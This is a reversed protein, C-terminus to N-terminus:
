IIYDIVKQSNETHAGFDAEDVVVFKRKSDIDKIIDFKSFSDEPTQISIFVVLKSKGLNNNFKEIWNDNERTDIVKFDRFNSWKGIKEDKYKGIIENEFSTFVSHMYSPLIMVDNDLRRFLELYTLTKGFRACLEAVINVSDTEENEIADLCQLIAIEQLLHPKFDKRTIKIYESGSVISELIQIIVKESIEESTDIHKGSFVETKSELKNEDFLSTRTVVQYGLAKLTKHLDKEVTDMDEVEFTKIFDVETTSKSGKNHHEYFRRNLNNTKGIGIKTLGEHKLEQGDSNFEKTLYIYGKM